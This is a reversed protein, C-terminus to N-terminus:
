PTEGGNVVRAVALARDFCECRDDGDSFVRDCGSGTKGGDHFDEEAHGRCGPSEGCSPCEPVDRTIENEYREGEADLLAALPSVLPGPKARERLTAAATRFEQAPTM